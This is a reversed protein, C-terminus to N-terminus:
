WGAVPDGVRETGWQMDVLVICCRGGLDAVHVRGERFAVLEIFVELDDGNRPVCAPGRCEEPIRPLM